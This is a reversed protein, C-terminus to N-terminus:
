FGLGTDSNGFLSQFPSKPGHAAVGLPAPPPGVGSFGAGPPGADDQWTQDRDTWFEAFADRVYM